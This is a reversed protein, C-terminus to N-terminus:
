LPEPKPGNFESKGLAYPLLLSSGTSREGHDAPEKQNLGLHGGPRLCRAKPSLSFGPHGCASRYPDQVAPARRGM